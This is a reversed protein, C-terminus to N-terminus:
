WSNFMNGIGDKLDHGKIFKVAILTSVTCPVTTSGLALEPWTPIRGQKVPARYPWSRGFM